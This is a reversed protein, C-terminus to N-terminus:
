LKGKSGPEQRQIQEAGTRMHVQSPMNQNKAKTELYARVEREGTTLESLSRQM